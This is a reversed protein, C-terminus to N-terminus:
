GLLQADEDAGIDQTLALIQLVAGDDHVVIQRPRNNAEYLAGSPNVSDTLFGLLNQTVGEEGCFAYFSQDIGAHGRVLGDEEFRRLRRCRRPM